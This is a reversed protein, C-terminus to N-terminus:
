IKTMLIMNSCYSTTREFGNSNIAKVEKEKELFPQFLINRPQGGQAWLLWIGQMQARSSFGAEQLESCSGKRRDARFQTSENSKLSVTDFSYKIQNTTKM